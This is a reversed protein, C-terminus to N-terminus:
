SHLTPDPLKWYRVSTRISSPLFEYAERDVVGDLLERVQQEKIKLQEEYPLSQYVCGGCVGFHPCAEEPREAPSHEMIELARAEAKGKRKKTIVCRIKQGPIPNKVVVREGEIHLIGKNPFDITEVIGEYIDGKKM